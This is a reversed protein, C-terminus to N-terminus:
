QTITTGQAVSFNETMEPEAGSHQPHTQSSIHHHYTDVIITPVKVHIYFSFFCSVDVMWRRVRKLVMITSVMVVNRSVAALARYCLLLADLPKNRGLLSFKLTGQAHVSLSSEEQKKSYM